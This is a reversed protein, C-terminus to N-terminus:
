LLIDIAEAPVVIIRSTVGDAAEFKGKKQRDPKPARGSGDRCLYNTQGALGRGM